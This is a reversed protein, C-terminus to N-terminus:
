ILTVQVCENHEVGYELVNDKIRAWAMKETNFAKGFNGHCDIVIVGGHGDLRNKMKEIAEEASVQANKGKEINFIVERALTIKMMSEGHGTTSCGGYENAYGGCGILPSDGIRGQMKAPLGGTSTACAICGTEDMAVAGVTDHYDQTSKGIHGEIANEYNGYFNERSKAQSTVLELPDELIPFNIKKAFSLAGKSDLACHPTREMIKRAFSVPNSFHNVAMVAGSNLTRGEMIMADCEVQNLENLVSGHGANFNPNDEMCNVAKEVANLASEGNKLCTYGAKVAEQIGSCCVERYHDPIAWAGGHVIICPTFKKRVEEM